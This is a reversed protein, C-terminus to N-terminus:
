KLNAKKRPLKGPLVDQGGELGGEPQINNSERGERVLEQIMRDFM